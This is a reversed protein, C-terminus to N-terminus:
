NKTFVIQLSNRMEFLVQSCTLLISKTYKKIFFDKVFNRKEFLGLQLNVFCKENTEKYFCDTVFNKMEFCGLQLNVLHQMVILYSMRFSSIFRFTLIANSYCIQFWPLATATEMIKMYYSVEFIFDMQTIVTVKTYQSFFCRLQCYKSYYVSFSAYEPSNTFIFM